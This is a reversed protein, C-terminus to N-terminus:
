DEGRVMTYFNVKTAAVKASHIQKENERAANIPDLHRDITPDSQLLADLLAALEAHRRDRGKVYGHGIVGTNLQVSCRAVTMEGLNFQQGTGGARGRVMVLGIEPERLFSYTTGEGTEAWISELESCRSRALTEM